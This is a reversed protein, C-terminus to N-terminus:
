VLVVAENRTQDKVVDKVVIDESINDELYVESIGHNKLHDVYSERLEVGQALLVGGDSSFITRALKVGYQISEINVKRM